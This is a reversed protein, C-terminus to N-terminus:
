SAELIWSERRRMSRVLKKPSTVTSVSGTSPFGSWTSTTYLTFSFGVPASSRPTPKELTSCIASDAETVCDFTKPVPLYRDALM